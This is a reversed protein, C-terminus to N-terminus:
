KNQIEPRSESVFSVLGSRIASRVKEFALERIEFKKRFKSRGNVEQVFSPDTRFKPLLAACRM